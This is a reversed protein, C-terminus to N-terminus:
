PSPSPVAQPPCEPKREAPWRFREAPMLRDILPVLTSLIVLAWILANYWWFAHQLVFALAAVSAAFLIRALRRDPTTKPDSIMFFTFLILSGVNLQHLLVVPRQGLYLVRCTKLAVWSLLFALSVDSRFARHAVSLGFIAFWALLGASEGWQSPSSWAHPTLFLCAALGLNTPNFVHKGRVRLAFKSSIAIFAALPPIWLADTRLLLSLGLSSIIASRYGADPVRYLRTMAWQTACATALIVPPQWPRLEFELFTLGALLFSSLFAIQLLRPDQPLPPLRVEPLALRALMTGPM